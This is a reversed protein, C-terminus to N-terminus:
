IKEVLREVDALLTKVTALMNLVNRRATDDDPENPVVMYTLLPAFVWGDLTGSNQRFRVPLWVGTMGSQTEIVQEDPRLDAKPIVWGFTMVDRELRGVIESNTTPQARVNAITYTTTMQVPIRRTAFDQPFAPLVPPEVPPPQTPISVYDKLMQPVGSQYIDFQRWQESSFLSYILQGEVIGNYHSYVATDLYILCGAYFSDVDLDAGYLTRWASWLSRFGRNIQYPPTKPLGQAWEKIDGLDDAGHETLVIRPPKIGYQSCAALIFDLRGCHWKTLKSADTPWNARVTYDPHAPHNPAGGIFGSTPLVGFYEHLALVARHRNDSVLRLFDRLEHWRGVNEPTGVSYNGVVFKLEPQGILGSLYAHLENSDGSENNAYIWLNPPLTSGGLAANLDAKVHNLFNQWNGWSQLPNDDAPAYSRAIVQTNPYRRAAEIALKTANMVLLWAPNYGDILGYLADKSFNPADAHVNFSIRAQAM